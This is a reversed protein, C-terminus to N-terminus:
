KRERRAVGGRGWNDVELLRTVLNTLRRRVM